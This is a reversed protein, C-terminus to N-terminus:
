AMMGKEQCGSSVDGPAMMSRRPSYLTTSNRWPLGHGDKYLRRSSVQRLEQFHTEGIEDHAEVAMCEGGEEEARRQVGCEDSAAIDGRFVGNGTGDPPAVVGFGVEEACWGVVGAEVADARGGALAAGGLDEGVGAGVCGDGEELGVLGPLVGGRAVGNEGGQM